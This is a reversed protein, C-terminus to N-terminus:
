VLLLLAVDWCRFPEGAHWMGCSLRCSLALVHSELQFGYAFPLHSFRSGRLKSRSILTGAPRACFRFVRNESARYLAASRRCDVVLLWDMLILWDILTLSDTLWCWTFLFDLRRFCCRPFGVLLLIAIDLRESYPCWRALLPSRFWSRLESDALRAIM